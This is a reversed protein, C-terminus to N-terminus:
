ASITNSNWGPNPPYWKENLTWPYSLHNLIVHGGSVESLIGAQGMLSFGEFGIKGAVYYTTLMPNFVPWKSDTM